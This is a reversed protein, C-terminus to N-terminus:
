PRVLRQLEAPSITISRGGTSKALNEFTGDFHDSGVAVTFVPVSVTHPREGFADGPVQWAKASILVVTGTPVLGGAATEAIALAAPLDSAPGADLDIVTDYLDTATSRTWQTPAVPYVLEPTEGALVMQVPRQEDLSQVSKRILRAYEERHEAFSPGVDLVYVVPGDEPLLLELVMPDRDAAAEGSTAVIAGGVILGATVLGVAVAIALWRTSRKAPDTPRAQKARKRTRQRLGTGMSGSSVLDGLEDLGTGSGFTPQHLTSPTRVPQPTPNKPKGLKHKSPVTQIAGCHRCRVVGGAFADDIEMRDNCNTCTLEIM